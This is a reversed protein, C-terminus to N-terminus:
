HVYHTLLITLVTGVVGFAGIAYVWAANLGKSVGQRLDLRSTLRLELATVREALAEDRALYSALIAQRESTSPQVQMRLELESIRNSNRDTIDDMKDMLAQLRLESEARPMLTAAQDSLTARFENVGEFRKEAALQAKDIAKESASRTTEVLREASLMAAVVAAQQTNYREQLSARLSDLQERMVARYDDFERQSIKREDNGM